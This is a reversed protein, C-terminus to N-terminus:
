QIDTHRIDSLRTVSIPRGHPPYRVVTHRIDSIRTVSIPYGHPPYGIDMFFHYDDDSAIFFHSFCLIKFVSLMKGQKQTMKP